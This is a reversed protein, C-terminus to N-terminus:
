FNDLCFGIITIILLSGNIFLAVLGIIKDSIRKQLIARYGLDIGIGVSFAFLLGTVIDGPVIICSFVTFFCLFLNRSTTSQDKSPFRLKVALTSSIGKEM